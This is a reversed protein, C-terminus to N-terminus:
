KIYIIFYYYAVYLYAAGVKTAFQHQNQKLIVKFM